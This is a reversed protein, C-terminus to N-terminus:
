GSEAGEILKGPSRILQEVSIADMIGGRNAMGAFIM